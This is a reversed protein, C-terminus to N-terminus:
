GSANAPRSRSGLRTAIWGGVRGCVLGFLPAVLLFAVVAVVAFAVMPLPWAAPPGGFVDGAGTVLFDAVEVVGGVLGTRLGAANPDGGRSAALAGAIFGGVIVISGSVTAGSNPLWNLIVVAPLAALTGVIAFQWAAPLSRPHLASLVM